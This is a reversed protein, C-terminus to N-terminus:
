RTSSSRFCYLYTKGSKESRMFGLRVLENLDSRATNASVGHWQQHEEATYRYGSHRKSHGIIAIQRANCISSLTEDMQKNEAVQQSVFSNFQVVAKKFIRLNYLIFYTLDNEDTETYQFAQAYQSPATKLLSSISIYEAAWYGKRLLLWYFLARATRGNGDVFPHEYALMFHLIIAHAVPHLYFDSDSFDKNAFEFVLEMRKPLTEPTPPVHVIAGSIADGVIIAGDNPKRFRGVQDLPLLNRTMERHIDLLMAETLKDNKFNQLKSITEYNNLIMREGESAPSRKSALMERAQQRTAVAGELQSSSIAEEILSRKIYVRRNKLTIGAQPHDSQMTFGLNRDIFSLLSLMEDPMAMSFPTGDKGRLGPVPNLQRTLKLLAWKQIPTINSDKSFRIKDWHEYGRANKMCSLINMLASTEKPLSALAKEISPPIPTNM